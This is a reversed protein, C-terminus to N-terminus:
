YLFSLHEEFDSPYSALDWTIQLFRDNDGLWADVDRAIEYGKRALRTFHGQWIKWLVNRQACILPYKKCLKTWRTQMFLEIAYMLWGDDFKRCDIKPVYEHSAYEHFFLFPYSLYHRFGLRRTFPLNIGDPLTSIPRPKSSNFPVESLCRNSLVLAPARINMLEINLVRGGERYFDQALGKGIDRFKILSPRVDWNGADNHIAQLITRLKERADTNSNYRNILKQFSLDITEVALEYNAGCYSGRLEADFRDVFTDIDCVRSLEEYSDLLKHCCLSYIRYEAQPYGKAVRVGSM